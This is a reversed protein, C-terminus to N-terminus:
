GGLFARLLAILSLIGSGGGALGAFHKFQTVGETAARLRSEHDLQASELACVRQELLAMRRNNEAEMLRMRSRLLSNAHRLQTMMVLNEDM